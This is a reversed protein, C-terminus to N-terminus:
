SNTVYYYRLKKRKDKDDPLKAVIDGDQKIESLLKALYGGFIGYGRTYNVIETWVCGKKGYSKIRRIILDRNEIKQKVGDSINLGKLIDGVNKDVDNLFIETADTDEKTVVPTIGFTRNLATLGGVKVCYEWHTQRYISEDDQQNLVNYYGETEIGNIIDTCDKNLDLPLLEGSSAKDIQKMRKGIRIGLNRLETWVQKTNHGIPVIHNEKIMDGPKVYAIKIRRLLGQRNMNKTLYLDPEQMSSFMSCYYGKNLYRISKGDRRSLHDVHSEGYYFKSFVIDVGESNTCIKKLIGGFEPSCILYNGIDNKMGEVITDIIGAKSGDEIQLGIMSNEFKEKDFTMGDKYFEKTANYIVHNVYNLITSRRGFGPKCSNIFWTNPRMGRIDPFDYFQGFCTSLITYAGTKKFVHPSDNYKDLIEM